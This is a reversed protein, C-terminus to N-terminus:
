KLTLDLMQSISFATETGRVLRPREFPWCLLCEWELFLCCVENDLRPFDLARLSDPDYVLGVYDRLFSITGFIYEDLVFKVELHKVILKATEFAQVPM